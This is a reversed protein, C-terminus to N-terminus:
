VSELLYNLFSAPPIKKVHRSKTLWNSSWGKERIHDELEHLNTKYNLGQSHLSYKKTAQTEAEIVKACVDELVMKARM